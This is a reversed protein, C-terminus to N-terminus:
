RCYGLQAAGYGGAAEGAKTFAYSGGIGAVVAGVIGGGLPEVLEGALFGGVLGGVFGTGHIAAARGVSMGNAHDNAAAIGESAAGLVVAGPIAARGITAAGRINGAHRASAAGAAFISGHVDGVREVITSGLNHGAAMCSQRQQQSQPLGGATGRVSAVPNSLRVVSVLDTVTVIVCFYGNADHGRIGMGCSPLTVVACHGPGDPCEPPPPVAQLGLPDLLNVPDNLVYAYLNLGGAYGIPDPQMIRGLHPAYMRSKYYYLGQGSAPSTGLDDLWAQGTYQFRGANGPQPKGYEDYRDIQIVNANDDSRAIISGREDATMWTRNGAADQTSTRREKWPWTRAMAKRTSIDQNREAL